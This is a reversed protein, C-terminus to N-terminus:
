SPHAKGKPVLMTYLVLLMTAIGLIRGSRAFPGGPRPFRKVITVSDRLSCPLCVNIASDHAYTQRIRQQDSIHRHRSV